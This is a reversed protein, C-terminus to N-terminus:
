QVVELDYADNYIVIYTFLLRDDPRTHTLHIFGHYHLFDYM